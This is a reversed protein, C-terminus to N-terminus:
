SKEKSHCFQVQDFTTFGALFVPESIVNVDVVDMLAVVMLFEKNNWEITGKEEKDFRQILNDLFEKETLRGLSRLIGGLKSTEITGDNKVDYSKFVARFFELIKEDREKQSM